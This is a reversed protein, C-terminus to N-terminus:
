RLKAALAQALGVMRPKLTAYTQGAAINMQITVVRQGVRFYIEADDSRTNERAYAADGVGAVAEYNAGAKSREQDITSFAFPDLQIYIVGGGYNCATGRGAPEQEPPILDFVTSGGAFSRAEDRSLLSCAGQAPAGHTPTAIFASLALAVFIRHDIFLM